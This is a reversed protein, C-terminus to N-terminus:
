LLFLRSKPLVLENNEPVEGDNGLSQIYLLGNIGRSIMGNADKEATDGFRLVNSCPHFLFCIVKNIKEAIELIYKNRVWGSKVVSNVLESVYLHYDPSHEKHM